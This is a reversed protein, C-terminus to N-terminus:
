IEDNNQTAPTLVSGQWIHVTKGQVKGSSINLYGDTESLNCTPRTAALRSGAFSAALSIQCSFKAGHVQQWGVPIRMARM